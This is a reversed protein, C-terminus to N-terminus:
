KNEHTKEKRNMRLKIMAFIAMGAIALVTIEFLTDFGRYDVLIVNVINGGGALSYVTEEYYNSITPILKQSHASLAVLTVMVGVAISIVARNLQFRMREERKGLKPLHYFALLFLAVSITEIVLQTLALDPANFIVFFLAVTYGVSGLGIIATLRSKALITIATGILLVVVLIIEYPRIPATGQFSLSFANKVFLSGIVIVAIGSFMYLLYHRMSGTMYLRSLRNLGVDLGQMIKDYANNLTFARPFRQYMGQWKPLSVFLLVGIIIIGITMLLEPNVGHWAAVHIDIDQPTEYLFPQIALVAPKVFTDGIFNPIFFIFVVLGALLMPSVLMGIPAEHPKHPLQEPKYNGNFTRFVFYFSYIFTFISAIWAIIPFLVGWTDFGFLEFKQLSLMATLFMEKSLFGNFPPLGAMSLSGIAAVTFSIPMISMLGGLKRIDRTGTEHDIIGAIMFLSGKFTAHNILHFIAAFAAFKITDVSENAHFAVASAGLLSMILGLQSVTSFALIGKLDTQKVAFFSGWFLTLIGIGTVLWVWLESAAFIPTFRAVLYIGAKVMTASHLYASVPTPAEMADPLWIYFPFQASKTFAGLLLLVLSWTFLPQDVLNPAMIILERISYTGGMLYLLVFGGLMMLGGGVTIMMSKLAGLRSADRNYWYGILLFSSISTLEWFFYLTILHDSQVVGLMASMFLLLYVYFNHLKEKHKDLYFISYLVVLSGIGTILLSFLLSLGDLYSVFSIDLSPIWPLKATFVGGKAVQAIYSAYIVVLTAPVALVFWGTHINKISKYLFPVFIAALMPIFIYLVQLM